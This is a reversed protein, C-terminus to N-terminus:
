LFCVVSVTDQEEGPKFSIFDGHSQIYDAGRFPTDEGEELPDEGHFQGSIRLTVSQADPAVGCEVTLEGGDTQRRCCLAFLEDLLVAIRAYHRRQIGNEDLRTKLFDLVEGAYASTGPVRCHSLEKEGKRYELLLAAYGDHTDDAPCFAAVEESLVRLSDAPEKQSRGRNLSERLAQEGFSAGEQNEALVLGETCLFLRDGQRLRLEEARYSVNQNRALPILVPADVQEYREGSRMLMPPCVGANVYNFFGMSTDFTGLLAWVEGKSGYDYLQANVDNMTEEVSRGLRIRSRILTQATCMRLAAHIGPESVQGIAVCLLGSDIYFYDYFTCCRQQGPCVAGAVEFYQRSPYDKLTQPLVARCIEETTFAQVTQTAKETAAAELGAMHREVASMRDSLVESLEGVPGTLAGLHKRLDEPAISDWNAVLDTLEDMPRLLLRHFLAACVSLMVAMLLILFVAWVSKPRWGTLALILFAVWACVASLAIGWQLVRRLDAHEQKM